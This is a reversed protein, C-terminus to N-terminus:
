RQRVPAFIKVLHKEPNNESVEDLPYEIYINGCLELNEEKLRCMFKEYYLNNDDFYDHSLEYINAYVGEEIKESGRDTKAYMCGPANWEGNLASEKFVIQGMQVAFNISNSKCERVFDHLYSYDANPAAGCMRGMYISESGRLELTFLPPKIDKHLRITAAYKEISCKLHQLKDIKEALLSIHTEFLKLTNEPTRNCIHARVEELSLGMGRLVLIAEILELQRYSYLRYNNDARGAPKLIGLDDYYLLHSRSVGSLKAFESISLMEDQSMRDGGHVDYQSVAFSDLIIITKTTRSTRVFFEVSSLQM